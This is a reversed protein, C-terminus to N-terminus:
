ILTLLGCVRRIFVCDPYGTVSNRYRSGFGQIHHRIQPLYMLLHRASPDSFIEKDTFFARAFGYSEEANRSMIYDVHPDKGKGPQAPPIVAGLRRFADIGRLALVLAPETSIFFFTDIGGLAFVLAPETSVFYLMLGEYHWFGPLNQLPFFFCLVKVFGLGPCIRHFYFLL